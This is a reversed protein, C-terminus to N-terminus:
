VSVCDYFDYFSSGKKGNRRIEIGYVNYRDFSHTVYENTM